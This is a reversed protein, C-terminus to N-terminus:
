LRIDLRGNAMASHGPEHMDPPLMVASGTQAQAFATHKPNRDQGFQFETQGYGLERLTRDLDASHRRLQDLTEPREALILIRMHDGEPIMKLRLRGLEEPELRLEITGDTMRRVAEAIQIQPSPPAANQTQAASAAQGLVPAPPASVAQSFPVAAATDLNSFSSLGPPLGAGESMIPHATRMDNLSQAIFAAGEPKPLAASIIASGPRDRAQGEPSTVHLDETPTDSGAPWVMGPKESVLGHDVFAAAAIEQTPTIEAVSRAMAPAIFPPMVSPAFSPASIAPETGTLALIPPAFPVPESLAAQGIMSLGERDIPLKPGTHQGTDAPGSPAFEFSFEVRPLALSLSDQPHNAAQVEPTLAISEKTEFDTKEPTASSEKEPAINQFMNIEFILKSFESGSVAPVVQPQASAFIPFTQAVIM